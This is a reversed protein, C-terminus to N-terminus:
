LAYEVKKILPHTPYALKLRRWQEVAQQFDGSKKYRAVGFLYLADPTSLSRPSEVVTSLQKIAADYDRRDMDAAARMVRLTQQFHEASSFGSWRYLEKQKSDTAIYVPTMDVRFLKSLESEKVSDIRVPIFLQTILQIIEEKSHTVADM